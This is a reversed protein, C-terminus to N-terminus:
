PRRWSTRAHSLSNGIKIGGIDVNKLFGEAHVGDRSINVTAGCSFGHVTIDCALTLGKSLSFGSVSCNESAIGLMVRDFNLDFDPAALEVSSIGYIDGQIVLEFDKPLISKFVSLPPNDANLTGM